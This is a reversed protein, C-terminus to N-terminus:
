LDIQCDLANKHSLQCHQNSDYFVNNDKSSHATFTPKTKLPDRWKGDEFEMCM